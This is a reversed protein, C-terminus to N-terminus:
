IPDAEISVSYCVIGPVADAMFTTEEDNKELSVFTEKLPRIAFSVPTAGAFVITGGTAQIDGIRYANQTRGEADTSSSVRVLQRSWAMGPDGEDVYFELSDIDALPRKADTPASPAVCAIPGRALAPVSGTLLAALLLALTVQRPM